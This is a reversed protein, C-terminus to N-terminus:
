LKKVLTTKGIRGIGVVGLIYLNNNQLNRLVKDVMEDLRIVSSLLTPLNGV